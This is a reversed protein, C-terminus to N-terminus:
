GTSEPLPPLGGADAPVPPIQNDKQQDVVYDPIRHILGVLIAFAQQYMAPDMLRGNWIIARNGNFEISHNGAFDMLFQMSEQHIVDYAWRKNPAKVCFEKSFQASEFDIDDAGFFEGIKDFFNERRISLKDLPLPSELIVASFYHHHTQRNGKSDTSYTEYHYDFAHIKWGQHTGEIHNEGYRNSGQKLCGFMPEERIDRRDRRYTLGNQSAWRHLAERREKAQKAGFIIMVIVFAFFVFFLFFVPAFALMGASASAVPVAQLMMPTMM